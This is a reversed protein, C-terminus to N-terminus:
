FEATHSTGTEDPQGKKQILEQKSTGLPIYIGHLSGQAAKSIFDRDLILKDNEMLSNEKHDDDITIQPKVHSTGEQFGVKMGVKEVL